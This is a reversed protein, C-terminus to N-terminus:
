RGQNGKAKAARTLTDGELNVEGCPHAEFQKHRRQQSRAFRSPYSSSTSM